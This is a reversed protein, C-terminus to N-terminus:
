EEARCACGVPCGDPQFRAALDPIEAFLRDVEAQVEGADLIFDEGRSVDVTAMGVLACRVVACCRLCRAQRPDARRTLDAIAEDVRM